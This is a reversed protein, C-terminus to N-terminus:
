DDPAHAPFGRMHKELLDPTFKPDAPMALSDSFPHIADLHGQAWALWERAEERKDGKLGAIHDALADLYTTMRHHWRWTREQERLVELRHIQRAKDVARDYAAQWERRHEAERRERALKDKEANAARLEVEFLAKGLRQELSGRKTDSFADQQVASGTLVQLSLRGSPHYDYKPIRMWYHREQDRLEKATPVHPTRDDLEHLTIAIAHGHVTIEVVGRPGYDSQRPRAVTYGRSVAEACLAQLLRLGRARTKRSWPLLDPDDQISEVVPHLSRLSVPVPVEGIDMPMWEPLPELVLFYESWSDGREWSLTFGAPVKGFRNASAALNEVSAREFTPVELRGDAALVDAVLQDTPALGTVPRGRDPRYPNVPRGSDPWHGEPYALNELFYTGAETMAASWSGSKKSVTVLRRSKLAAASVKYSDDTMVGAPCGDSIWQLVALQRENVTRLGM